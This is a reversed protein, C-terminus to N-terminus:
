PQSSGEEAPIVVDVTTVSVGGPSVSPASTPTLPGLVSEAASLPETEIRDYPGDSRIVYPTLFILLESNVKVIERHKFLEGLGPIDGLGPVRRIIARDEERLIGSILFTRGDELVVRTTTERRDVIAGGFLTKGSLVSSILLNVTLDIKRENTIHPKVRLRIGVPFYDFDQIQSGTDTTQTHSIFPIDQGDFFEAEVNDAALIKPESKIKMDTVRHLLSILNNVDVNLSVQNERGFEDKWQYNLLGRLANETINSDGSTFVSPDSSFRYGLSTTDDHTIEAIVAKILVRHGPKDLEKVYQEIADAYEEPAAVMLLNQELNPVIRLKGVLNSPQKVKTESPLNQWWFQMQRIDTQGQQPSAANASAQRSADKAYPSGEDSFDQFPKSLGHRLISAPTGPANLLSNLQEALTEAEAFKLQIIRPLGGTQPQDIRALMEEIVQYNDENKSVVILKGTDPYSEFRFQGFLRGVPAAEQQPSEDWWWWSNNQKEKKTFLSELLEKTKDPDAYKLNYIRPAAEKGDFPKDWEAIQEAIRTMKEPAAVVTLANRRVNATVSVKERDSGPPNYSGFFYRVGSLDNGTFLEKINDAVQQADAYTLTFTRTVRVGTEAIDIENLWSKILDRNQTSGVIMLRRSGAFPFIRIATRLSEDPNNNLMSTLQSALTDVDGYKVEIIESQTSQPKPKDLVKLWMEVQALVNSPAAIVISARRPDPILLIPKKEGKISVTGVSAAAGPGGPAMGPPMMGPPMGPPMGQPMMGMPAGSMNSSSSIARVDVGLYSAILKELMPITEYVDADQLHFVRLEGGSVDPKDFEAIIQQLTLLNEVNSVIMLTGTSPDATVHGYAPLLPRLVDILKTPDYHKIMFLKRVITNGPTIGALDEEAAVTRIQAQNIQGIPILHITQQREEIAVGVENLATTLISMAEDIPVPKPNVLTVQTNEVEKRIIVPKGKQATLFEAIQRLPANNFSLPIPAPAAPVAASTPATASTTGPMTSPMTAGRTTTPQSAVAPQSASSRLTPEAAVSAGALSCAIV